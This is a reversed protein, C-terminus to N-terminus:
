DNLKCATNAQLYNKYEDFYQEFNYLLHILTLLQQNVSYIFLSDYKEQPSESSIGRLIIKWTLQYIM